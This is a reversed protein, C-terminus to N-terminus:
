KGFRRPARTVPPASRRRSRYDASPCFGSFLIERRGSSFDGLKSADEQRASIGLTKHHTGILLIFHRPYIGMPRFPTCRGTRAAALRPERSHRKQQLLNGHLTIADICIYTSISLYIFIYIYIYICISSLQLFMIVSTNFVHESLFSSKHFFIPQRSFVIYRSLVGRVAFRARKEKKKKEGQKDEERKEKKRGGREKEGERKRKKKIPYKMAAAYNM